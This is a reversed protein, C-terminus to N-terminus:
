RGLHYEGRSRPHDAPRPVMVRLSTTNGALAPIIGEHFSRERCHGRIGRSLPSSGWHAPLAAAKRPYEGRSRPHDEYTVQGDQRNETNGALAPIIRATTIETATTMLIGRSLPSSGVAVLVAVAGSLYEGRSRPHDAGIETTVRQFATNGALAPIIRAGSLAGSYPNPIGRSLPSSGWGEAPQLGLEIYEGRSRPHDWWLRWLLSWLATNGALAPIIRLLRFQAGRAM